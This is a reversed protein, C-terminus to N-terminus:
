LQCDTYIAEAMIRVQANFAVRNAIALTDNECFLDNGYGEAPEFAVQKPQADSPYPNWPRLKDATAKSIDFYEGVPCTTNDGLLTLLAFPSSKGIDPHGHTQVVCTKSTGWEGVIFTENDDPPCGNCPTATFSQGPLMVFTFNSSLAAAAPMFVLLQQRLSWKAM